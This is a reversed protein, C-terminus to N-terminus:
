RARSQVEHACCDLAGAPVFSRPTTGVYGLATAAIWQRRSSSLSYRSERTTVVAIRQKDIMCM